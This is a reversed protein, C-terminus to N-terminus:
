RIRKRSEVGFVNGSIDGAIHGMASGHHAIHEKEFHPVVGHLQNGAGYTGVGWSAEHKQHHKRHTIIV